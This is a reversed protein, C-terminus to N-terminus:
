GNDERDHSAADLDVIDHVGVYPKTKYRTIDGLKRVIEAMREAESLVTELSTRAPNDPPVKRMALEAYGMISTLPQNLEHAAAGALEVVASQRESLELKRQAQQLEEEMQLRERLDSFIGVTAVEKGQDYVIGAALNVPITDGDKTILAHHREELKGPGGHEESRLAAMIKQAAGSPYLNTVDMGIAEEATYGTISEAVANFVVISGDMDSAVIADASADILNVLFDKTRRLEEEMARTATVDRFSVIAETDNGVARPLDGTDDRAALAATTLSLIAVQGSARLVPLDVDPQYRGAAVGEMIEALAQEANPAVIDSLKIQSIAAEDFGLISLAARNTFLIRSSGDIIMLGDGAFDFFRQYKEIQRLRREAQIRENLRRESRSRVVAYLRLNRIAIATANAVIRGFRVERDSLGEKRAASRRLLLVGQVYREIRMPFLVISRIQKDELISRVEEMVNSDKVDQIVLPEATRIVEKIEPYLEIDIQQNALAADDSAAVVFGTTAGDDLLIISCRDYALARAMRETIELMTQEVNLTSILSESLELLADLDAEVRELEGLRDTM